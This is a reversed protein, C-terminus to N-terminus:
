PPGPRIRLNIVYEHIDLKRASPYCPLPVLVGPRDARRGTPFARHKRKWRLYAMQLVQFHNDIFLFETEDLPRDQYLVERLGEACKRVKTLITLINDAENTDKANATERATRPLQTVVVM